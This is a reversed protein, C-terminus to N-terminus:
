GAQQEVSVVHDGRFTVRISEDEHTSYVDASVPEHYVIYGGRLGGRPVVVRRWGVWESGEYQQWHSKYIWATETGDSDTRARKEAPQGLAIYVMDHTDGVSIAGRELREQTRSSLRNYTHSKEEARSAFSTCGGALLAAMLAGSLLVFLRNTKM